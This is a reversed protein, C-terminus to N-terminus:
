SEISLPVRKFSRHPGANRGSSRRPDLVNFNYVVNVGECRVIYVSYKRSGNASSNSSSTM